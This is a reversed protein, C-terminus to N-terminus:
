HSVSMIVGNLFSIKCPQNAYRSPSIMCKSLDEVVKNLEEKNVTLKSSDIVISKNM